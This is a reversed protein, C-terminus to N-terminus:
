SNSQLAQAPPLRRLVALAETDIYVGETCANM